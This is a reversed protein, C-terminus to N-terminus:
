RFLDKLIEEATMKAYGDPDTLAAPDIWWSFRGTEKKGGLDTYAPYSFLSVDYRSSWDPYYTQMYYRALSLAQCDQSSGIASLQVGEGPHGSRSPSPTSHLIVMSGDGCTGVCIWVHGKMSFIDGPRFTSPSFSQSRTGLGARALVDARSTSYGVYIGIDEQGARDNMTNYIVWGLYGSCDPGAYHYQNWRGYPYYSKTPDDSNKFTYSQDQSQFFAIWSQPLGISLAQEDSADDQWNWAGGYVYLSTGVPEMATALFNKLTRQGPSGTVPPRYEKPVTTLYIVQAPSDINGDRFVKVTMGVTLDDLMKAGVTAGGPQTRIEYIGTDTDIKIEHGDVSLMTDTIRDIPGTATPIALGANTIMGDTITLDYIYGEMLANQVPYGDNKGSAIMYATKQGNVSFYHDFNDKDGANIRGYGQVGLYVAYDLTDESSRAPETTREKHYMIPDAAYTIALFPQITLFLATIWLVNLIPLIKGRM